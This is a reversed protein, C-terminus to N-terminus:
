TSQSVTQCFCTSFVPVPAAKGFRISILDGGQKLDELPEGTGQLLKVRQLQAYDAGSQNELGRERASTVLIAKKYTTCHTQERKREPKPVPWKKQRSYEIERRVQSCGRWGEPRLESM